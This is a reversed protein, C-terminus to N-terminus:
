FEKKTQNRLQQFWGVSALQDSEWRGRGSDPASQSTLVNRLRVIQRSHKEFAATFRKDSQLLHRFLLDQFM